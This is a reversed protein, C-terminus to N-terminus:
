KPLNHKFWDDISWAPLDRPVGREIKEQGSRIARTIMPHSLFTEEDMGLRKGLDQVSQVGFNTLLPDDLSLHFTLQAECALVSTAAVLQEDRSRLPYHEAVIINILNGTMMSPHQLKIAGWDDTSPIPTSLFRALGSWAKGSVGSCLISSDIRALREIEVSRSRLTAEIESLTAEFHALLLVNQGAAIAASVEECIGNLKRRCDWWVKDDILTTPM